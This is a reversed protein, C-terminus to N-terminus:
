IYLKSLDKVAIGWSLYTPNNFKWEEFLGDIVNKPNQKTALITNTKQVKMQPNGKEDFKQEM